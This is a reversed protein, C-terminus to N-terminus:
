RGSVSLRGRRDETERQRDAPVIGTLLGGARDGATSSARPFGARTPVEPAFSAQTPKAAGKPGKPPAMGTNPVPRLPSATVVSISAKGPGAVLAAMGMM